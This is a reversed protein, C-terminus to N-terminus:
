PFSIAMNKNILSNAANVINQTSRYNRELKFVRCGPYVNKFQLINDISAGRFSYISQADDGVVCINREKECLRQVILHQAFNTDQYEDVLVYRFFHSYKELVDPCDRFLINTMLLLDDFDMAGAQRCRSQYRKYIDRILPVRCEDDHEMIEKNQEYATCTILANKANSIRSQVLNPKYVKDDLQMEKMNSPKGNLYIRFSSSGNVKVNDDGDVTVMPVKRLMEIMTSTKADPDDEMLYATKEATVKVLPKKAVVSIEPLSDLMSPQVATTDTAAFDKLTYSKKVQGNMLSVSMAGLLFCLCFFRKM